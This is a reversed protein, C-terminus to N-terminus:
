RGPGAPGVRHRRGAGVFDPAPEEPEPLGLEGASIASVGHPALLAAIERLKGANHTAIVLTSGPPLTRAM